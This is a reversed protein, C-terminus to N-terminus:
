PISQAAEANTKARLKGWGVKGLFLRALDINKKMSSENQKAGHFEVERVSPAGKKELGTEREEGPRKVKL